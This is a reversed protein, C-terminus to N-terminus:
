CGFFSDCGSQYDCGKDANYQLRCLDGGLEIVINAFALPEKTEKDYITGKLTGQQSFVLLNAALVLGITLLLNRLM